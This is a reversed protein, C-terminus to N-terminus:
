STSHETSLLDFVVKAKLGYGMIKMTLKPRSMASVKRFYDEPLYHFLRWAGPKRMLGFISYVSAALSAVEYAALGKNRSFGMFEAASIAADAAFGESSTDNLIRHSFEKSLSNFGDTVLIAGAVVGLPTMTAIMTAGVALSVGALVVSVASIVYGVIENNEKVFEVRAYLQVAKTRILRDQELLNATEAQLTQTAQTYADISKVKRVATLQQTILDRIEEVFKIRTLGDKLHSASVTNAINVLKRAERDLAMESWAITKQGTPVALYM